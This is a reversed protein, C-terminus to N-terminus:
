VQIGAKRAGDAVAKVVGHYLYGNRDFVVKSVKKEKLKAGILEGIKEADAVTSKLAKNEKQANSVSALTKGAVDDIVQVYVYKNSRFVSMRPIAASGSIKKRIRLKRKARQKKKTELRNM